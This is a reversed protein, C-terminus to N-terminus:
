LTSVVRLLGSKKRSSSASGRRIGWCWMLGVLGARRSMRLRSTKAPCTSSTPSPSTGTSSSTNRLWASSRPEAGPPSPLPNKGIDRFEEDTLPPRMETTKKWVFAACWADFWLKANEYIGSTLYDHYYEQKERVNHVSEDSMQDLQ